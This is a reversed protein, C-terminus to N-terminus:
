TTPGEGNGRARARREAVLQELLAIDAEPVGKQRAAAIVRNLKEVEDADRKRLSDLVATFANFAPQFEDGHRLPRAPPYKGDLMSMLHRQIVIVPGCVRHTIILGLVGIAIVEVVIFAASLYYVSLAEDRNVQDGFESSEMALDMIRNMEWYGHLLLYGLVLSIVAVIGVILATYKYQFERDVIPISRRKNSQAM